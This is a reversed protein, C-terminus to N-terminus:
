PMSATKFVVCGQVPCELAVPPRLHIGHEDVISGEPMEERTEGAPM